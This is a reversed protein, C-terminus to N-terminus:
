KKFSSVYDGLIAIDEDSLGNAQLYMIAYGPGKKLTKARYGKMSEIISEKSLDSILVNGASGPAIKDGKPGHCAICKKYLEEGSKQAIEPKTSSEIKPTSEPEIISEAAANSEITANSEISETPLTANQEITANNEINSEEKKEGCAIFLIAALAIITMKRM